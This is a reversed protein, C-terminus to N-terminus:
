HDSYEQIIKRYASFINARSVFGKYKGKETVALTYDNSTRFKKVIEEMYENIEVNNEPMYMLETIKIKDYLEPRFMIERIDDMTVVGLFNNEEDIVPFINRSSTKVVNILDGLKGGAQIVSFNTEMLTNIDLFALAAKDKHHTILQKRAALQHTYVSNTTFIRVTSYSFTASILLPVVLEYGGTLDGILFIATLPGHLVGAIMGGMGILAFNSGPLDLFGFHNVVFAFLLGLNVGTFLTPAFIGGVGGSGFTISAAVVKLLIMAILLTIIVISNGKFSEFFSNDFLYDFSGELGNNMSSYGEGYLPPFILIILGLSFGGILLKKYSNEIKSFLDSIYLYSRKWYISTLGAVIGLLIYYPVEEMIFGHALDIPIVVEQGMILYSMIVASASALLIPGLSALTLDLMLIEMSFVIAAIPAKFIASMAGASACGLLLTVQKNTLRLSKGITSGIAAGTSVAPGELGVSGGFGVTIASAVISSYMNHPKIYGKNQSVSYLVNPIGHRIPLKVIYKIFLIVFLVGISPYILYFLTHYEIHILELSSQILHVANKLIAASIGAALGVIISLILM